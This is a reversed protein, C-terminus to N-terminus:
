KTLIRKKDDSFGYVFSNNVYIGKAINEIDNEKFNYLSANSVNSLTFNNDLLYILKFNTNYIGFSLIINNLKILNDNDFDISLVIGNNLDLKKLYSIIINYKNILDEYKKGFKLYDLVISSDINLNTKGEINSIDSKILKYFNNLCMFYILSQDNTYRLTNFHPTEYYTSIKYNDLIDLHKLKLYDRKFSQYNLNFDYILDYLNFCNNYNVDVLNSNFNSYLVDEIKGVSRTSVLNFNREYEKANM